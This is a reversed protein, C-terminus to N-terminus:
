VRRNEDMEESGQREEGASGQERMANRDEQLMDKDVEFGEQVEQSTQGQQGTQAEKKMFITPFFYFPVLTGIFDSPFPVTNKGFLILNTKHRNQEKTEVEKSRAFSTSFFVRREAGSVSEGGAGSSATREDM